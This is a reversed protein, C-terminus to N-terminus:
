GWHYETPPGEMWRLQVDGGIPLIGTKMDDFVQAAQPFLVALAQLKRLTKEEATDAKPKWVQAIIAVIGSLVSALGSGGATGAQTATVERGSAYREAVQGSNWLTLAAFLGAAIWAVKVTTKREM